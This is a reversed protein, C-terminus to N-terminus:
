LKDFLMRLPKVASRVAFHAVFDTLPVVDDVQVVAMRFQPIILDFCQLLPCCDHIAEAAIHRTEHGHFKPHAGSFFHRFDFCADDPQGLRDMRTEQPHVPIAAIDAIGVAFQIFREVDGIVIIHVIELLSVEPPFDAEFIIKIDKQELVADIGHIVDFQTEQLVMIM